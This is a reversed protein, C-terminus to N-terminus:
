LSRAMQGSVGSSGLLHLCENQTEKVVVYSRRADDASLAVGACSGGFGWLGM